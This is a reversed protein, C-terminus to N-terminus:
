NGSQLDQRLYGCKRAFWRLVDLASIVGVVNGAAANNVVPLLHIGELAMLASAEALSASESVTVALPTMIESVVASPAPWAGRLIDARSVFGLVTGRPDVVPAGTVGRELLIDRLLDTKADPLVCVLRRAMVSWVHTRDGDVVAREEVTDEMGFAGSKSCTVYSDEELPDVHVAVCEDCVSCEDLPISRRRGECHVLMTATMEGAGDITRRVRIPLRVETLPPHRM